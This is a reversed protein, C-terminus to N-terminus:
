TKFALQLVMCAPLELFVVFHDAGHDSIITQLM